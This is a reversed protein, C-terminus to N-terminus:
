PTKRKPKTVKPTSLKPTPLKPANPVLQKKVTTAFTFKKAKVKLLGDTFYVWLTDGKLYGDSINGSFMNKKLEQVDITSEFSTVNLCKVQHKAKRRNQDSTYLMLTMVLTAEGQKDLTFSIQQLNGEDWCLTNFSRSM